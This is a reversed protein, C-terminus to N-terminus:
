CDGKREGCKKTGSAPPAAPAQTSAAPPPTTAAPLPRTALSKSDPSVPSPAPKSALPGQPTLPKTSLTTTTSPQVAKLEPNTRVPLPGQPTLPKMSSTAQKAPQAAKPDLATGTPATQAFAAATALAILVAASYGVVSSPSLRSM